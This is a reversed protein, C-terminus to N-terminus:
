LITSINANQENADNNKTYELSIVTSNIVFSTIIINILDIVIAVVIRGLFSV